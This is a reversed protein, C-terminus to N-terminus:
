TTMLELSMYRDIFSEETNGGSLCSRLASIIQTWAEDADPILSNVVRLPVKNPSIAM